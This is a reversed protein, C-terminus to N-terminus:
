VRLGSGDSGLHLTGRLIMIVADGGGAGAILGDGLVM